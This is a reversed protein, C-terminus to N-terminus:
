PTAPAPPVPPVPIPVPNVVGKSAIGQLVPVLADSATGIADAKTGLATAQDVLAQSVGAAKLAAVLADVETSITGAINSIAQVNAATKTTAADIKDLAAKVEAETAMINQIQREQQTLQAQMTKLLTEIRDLQSHRMPMDEDDNVTIRVNM